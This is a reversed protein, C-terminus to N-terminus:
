SPMKPLSAQPQNLDVSFDPTSGMTIEGCPGALNEGLSQLFGGPEGALRIFLGGAVVLERASEDRSMGDRNEMERM